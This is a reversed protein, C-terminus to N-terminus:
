AVSRASATSVDFQGTVAATVLAQKREQLLAVTRDVFGRAAAVQAQERVHEKVLQGQKSPDPLPISIDRAIETNIRARTAGRSLVRTADTVPPSSIAIAAWDHRARRQDLRVRYCDAKVIAPGLNPAVCARGLPNNEDGLGAILLDGPEVDHQRLQEYYDMPIYAEDAHRFVSTGLNGLRIVRAGSESYHASTLSSGFPGDTISILVRRLPVLPGASRVREDWRRAFAQEVLSAQQRHLGIAQDLLAVQDDLFDAVRRQADLDPLVVAIDALDDWYLREQSPRIGRSRMRMEAILDQSRLLHHLFPGFVADSVRCVLYDPSVIGEYDSVGLAGSWAKMKNVVLDGPLVRLYRSVDDPTKNFNDSRSSKPIVGYDRYVSLVELEPHGADDIPTLLRRLRVRRADSNM